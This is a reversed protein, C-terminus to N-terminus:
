AEVPKKNHKASDIKQKTLLAQLEKLAKTSPHLTYAGWRGWSAASESEKWFPDEVHRVSPKEVFGADEAWVLINITQVGPKRSVWGMVPDQPAAPNSYWLVMDGVGLEPQVFNEVIEEKYIADSVRLGRFKRANEPARLSHILCDV